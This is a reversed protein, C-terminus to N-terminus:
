GLLSNEEEGGVAAKACCGYIVCCYWALCLCAITLIIVFFLIAYMNEDNGLIDAIPEFWGENAVDSDLLTGNTEEATATPEPTATATPEPTVASAVKVYADVNHHTGNCTGDPVANHLSCDQPHVHKRSTGGHYVGFGFALCDARADCLSACSEVSNPGALHGIRFESMSVCGPSILEYRTYAWDKAAKCTCTFKMSYNAYQQNNGENSWRPGWCGAFSEIDGGGVVYAIGGPHKGYYYSGANAANCTFNSSLEYHICWKQSVSFTGNEASEEWNCTTEMEANTTNTTNVEEATTNVETTNVEEAARRPVLEETLDGRVAQQTAAPAAALAASASAQARAVGGLVGLVLRTTAFM